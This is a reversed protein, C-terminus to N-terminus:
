GSNCVWVTLGLVKSGLLKLSVNTLFNLILLGLGVHVRGPRDAATYRTHYFKFWIPGGEKWLLPTSGIVFFDNKETSKKAFFRNETPNSVIKPLFFRFYFFRLFIASKEWFFNSRVPKLGVWFAQFHCGGVM